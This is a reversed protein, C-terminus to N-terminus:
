FRQRWVKFIRLTVFSESDMIQRKVPSADKYAKYISYVTQAGNIIQLGTVTAIEAENRIEPLLYTIATLGNNYYWFM